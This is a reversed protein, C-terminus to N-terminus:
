GFCCRPRARPSPLVAVFCRGMTMLAYSGCGAPSEGGGNLKVTTGAACPGPQGEVCARLWSRIPPPLVELADAGPHARVSAADDM